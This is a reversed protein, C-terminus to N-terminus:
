RPECRLSGHAGPLDQEVKQEPECHREECRIRSRRRDPHPAGSTVASTSDAHVLRPARETLQTTERRPSDVPSAEGMWVAVRSPSGMVRWSANAKGRQDRGPEDGARSTLIRHLFDRVRMSQAATPPTAFHSTATWSPRYSVHRPVPWTSRKALKRHGQKWQQDSSLAVHSWELLM